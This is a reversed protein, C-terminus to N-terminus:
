DERVKAGATDYVGHPESGFRGRSEATPHLGCAVEVSEIKLYSVLLLLGQLSLVVRCSYGLRQCTCYGVEEGVYLARGGHILPVSPPRLGGEGAVVLLGVDGSGLATNTVISGGQVEPV